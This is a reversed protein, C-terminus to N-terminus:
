IENELLRRALEKKSLEEYEIGLLNGIFMFIRKISM